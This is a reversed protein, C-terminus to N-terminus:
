ITPYSAQVAGGGGMAAISVGISYPCLEGSTISITIYFNYIFLTAFSVIVYVHLNNNPPAILIDQWYIM